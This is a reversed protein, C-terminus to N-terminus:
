PHTFILEAKNEKVENVKCYGFLHLHVINGEKLEIFDIVGLKKSNDDMLIEVDMSDLIWSVLQKKIEPFGTFEAMAWLENFEILRANLANRLRFIEGKKVKILDNKEVMFKEN